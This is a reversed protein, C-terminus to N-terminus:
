SILHFVSICRFVIWSRFRIFKSNWPVCINENTTKTSRFSSYIITWLRIPEALTYWNWTSMSMVRVNNLKMKNSNFKEFMQKCSVHFMISLFTWDFRESHFLLSQFIVFVSMSNMQENSRFLNASIHNLM